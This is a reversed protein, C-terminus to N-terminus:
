IGLCDKVVDRLQDITFPKFIIKDIKAKEIKAKLEDSSLTGTMLITKVRPHLTHAKKIIDIGDREKLKFDVLVIDFPKAKLLKIARAEGPATEIELFLKSLAMQCVKLVAPEDDVILLKKKEV